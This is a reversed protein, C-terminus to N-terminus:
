RGLPTTTPDTKPDATPDGPLPPTGALEKKPPRKKHGQGGGLRCYSSPRRVRCVGLCGIWPLLWKPQVSPSPRYDSSGPLM